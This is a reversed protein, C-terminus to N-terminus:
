ILLIYAHTHTHRQITIELSIILLTKIRAIKVIRFLYQFLDLCCSFPSMIFPDLFQSYICKNTIIMVTIIMM